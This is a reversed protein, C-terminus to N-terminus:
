TWAVCDRCVGSLYFKDAQSPIAVITFNSTEGFEAHDMMSNRRHREWNFVTARDRSSHPSLIIKGFYKNIALYYFIIRVHFLLDQFPTDVEHILIPSIVLGSIEKM